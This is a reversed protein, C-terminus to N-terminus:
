QATVSLARATAQLHKAMKTEVERATWRSSPVSINLAAVAFGESGLIPAALSIDGMAAQNTLIAYGKFAAQEIRAVLQDHRSETQPTLPEFQSSALIRDRDEPAMTALIATGSATFVAPLRSGVAVRINMLHPSVVRAILVIENGDLEQLNVTEKFAASLEQLYPMAKAILEHKRVYNYSFKLLRSTLAYAKTDPARSLYGLAELTYVMRQTTSRDLGSERSIEALTMERKPGDFVRLVKFCKAVSGVFLPSDSSPLSL